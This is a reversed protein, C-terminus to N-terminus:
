AFRLQPAAEEVHVPRLAPDLTARLYGHQADSGDAVEIAFGLRGLRGTLQDVRAPGAWRHFEMSISGVRRLTEDSCGELLIDFEAGECDIKMLDCRELHQDSFLRDLTVMQVAVSPGDAGDREYLSNMMEAAALHLHTEGDHGGCAAPVITVNELRNIRVNEALFELARPAPEVAIVRPHTPQTAAWVAFVGVHAGIDVVVARETTEPLAGYAHQTWIENFLFPLPESRPGRLTVGSRLRIETVGKRRRLPFLLVSLPDAGQRVLRVAVALDTFLRSLLRRTRAVM